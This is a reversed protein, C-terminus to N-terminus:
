EFRLFLASLPPIESEIRCVGDADAQIKQASFRYKDRVAIKKWAFVLDDGARVGNLLVTRSDFAGDGSLLYRAVKGTAAPSESAVVAAARRSLNIALVTRGAAPAPGDAHLYVRLKRDGVTASEIPIVLRGMLKKWLFSAFYDPRPDMSDQDLLGYRAGVLAQRFVKAVGQRAFLGLEDLWWLTSVFTDSLGPEGGYLAHATETVWNETVSGAPRRASALEISARVKEARRFAEDLRRASLMNRGTARRTAFRGYSSQQPYWHWSVADLFAAAPSSCLARILPNPEGIRPWVASAPGVLAARGGAERAMRGFREFDRAYRKGSVRSRVGHIFPFANVENGLEWAAVPYKKRRSWAILRRANDEKWDGEADRDAPGASLTFLLSFGSAALFEHLRKWLGKRLVFEHSIGKGDDPLEGGRSAGPAAAPEAAAAGPVPKKGMKYRLRDAETGGIRLMAPALARAYSRLREDSLDLAKTREGSVGHRIGKASGWWHGGLLLSTDITFSLYDAPIRKLPGPPPDFPHIVVLKRSM